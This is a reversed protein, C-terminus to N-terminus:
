TRSLSVQSFAISAGAYASPLWSPNETAGSCDRDRSCVGGHIATLIRRRQTNHQQEEICHETADNLPHILKTARFKVRETTGLLM